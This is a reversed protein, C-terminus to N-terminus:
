SGFPPATWGPNSVSKWDFFASYSSAVQVYLARRLERPLEQQHAFLFLMRVLEEKDPLPLDNILDRVGPDINASPLFRIVDDVQGGQLSGAQQLMGILASQESSSKEDLSARLREKVIDTIINDHFGLEPLLVFIQNTISDGLESDPIKPSPNLRKWLPQLTQLWTNYPM